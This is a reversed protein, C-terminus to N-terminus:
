LTLQCPIESDFFGLQQRDCKAPNVRVGRLEGLTSATKGIASLTTVIPEILFVQMRKQEEETLAESVMGIDALGQRADTL